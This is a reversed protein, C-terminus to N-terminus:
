LRKTQEHALDGIWPLPTWRGQLTHYSMLLWVVAAALGALAAVLPGTFPLLGGLIQLVALAGYALLSQLAHFLVFRSRKELALFVIGGVYPLLYCLAGAIHEPLGTSSRFLSM